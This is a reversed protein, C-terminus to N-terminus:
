AARPKKNKKVYKNKWGKYEKPTKIEGGDEAAIWALIIEVEGIQHKEQIARLTRIARGYDRKADKLEKQFQANEAKTTVLLGTLRRVLDNKPGLRKEAAKDIMQNIISKNPEFERKM